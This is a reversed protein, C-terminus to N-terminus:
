YAGVIFHRINIVAVSVLRSDFYAFGMASYGKPLLVFLVCGLGLCMGYFRLIHFPRGHASGRLATRCHVGCSVRMARAHLGCCGRTPLSSPAGRATATCSRWATRRPPM